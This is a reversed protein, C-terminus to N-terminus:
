PRYDEKRFGFVDGNSMTILVVNPNVVISLLSSHTPNPHWTLVGFNVGIWPGVRVADTAIAEQIPNRAQPGMNTSFDRAPGPVFTNFFVAM